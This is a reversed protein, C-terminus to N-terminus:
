CAGLSRAIDPPLEDIEDAIEVRGHWVGRVAGFSRPAPIPVLRAVPVGDRTIVIDEGEVARELLRALRTEAEAIGIQAM